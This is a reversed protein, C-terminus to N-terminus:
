YLRLINYSSEPVDGVDHTSVICQVQKDISYDHLKHLFNVVSNSNESDLGALPEDAILVGRSLSNLYFAYSAALSLMIKQGYSLRGLPLSVGSDFEAVFGHTYKIFFPAKLNELFGNVLPVVSRLVYSLVISPALDELEDVLNRCARRLRVINWIGNKNEVATNYAIKAEELQHTLDTYQREYVDYTAREQLLKRIEDAAEQQSIQCDNLISIDNKSLETINHDIQELNKRLTEIQGSLSHLEYGLEVYKRYAQTVQDTPIDPLKLEVMTELYNKKILRYQAVLQHCARRLAQRAQNQEHLQKQTTLLLRYKNDLSHYENRMKDIEAMDLPQGCFPCSGSINTRLIGIKLYDNLKSEALSIQNSIKEMERRLPPQRSRFYTFFTHKLNSQEVLLRAARDKREVIETYRRVADEPGDSNLLRALELLVQENKTREATLERVKSQLSVLEASLNQRATVADQLKRAIDYAQVVSSLYEIRKNITIKNRAIDMSRLRLLEDEMSQIRSHIGAAFSSAQVYDAEVSGFEQRLANDVYAKLGSIKGIGLLGLIDLSEDALIESFRQIEGQRLYWPMFGPPMHMVEAILYTRVRNLGSITTGDDLTLAANSQTTSFERTIKYDRGNANILLKIFGRTAGFRITQERDPFPEAYLTLFVADLLTSKGAGNPGLILNLGPQFQLNLKEICGFNEIDCEIIQM